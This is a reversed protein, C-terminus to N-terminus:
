LKALSSNNFTTINEVYFFSAFIQIVFVEVM